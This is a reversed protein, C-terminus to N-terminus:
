SNADTIVKQMQRVFEHTDLFYNPYAKKLAEIPGASVLVAEVQEGSQAREEVRAYEQNAFELQSIPFPRISVTRKQSDLVVLHYAGLGKESTIRDAAISFGNLKHLVHLRSDAKAVRSFVERESLGIYGPVAPTKEM